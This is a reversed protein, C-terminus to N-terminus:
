VAVRHCFISLKVIKDDSTAGYNTIIVIQLAVLTLLIKNEIFIDCLATIADRHRNAIGLTVVMKLQLRTYFVEYNM